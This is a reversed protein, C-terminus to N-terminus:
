RWLKRICAISFWCRKGKDRRCGAYFLKQVAVLYGYGSAIFIKLTLLMKLCTPADELAEEWSGERQEKWRRCRRHDGVLITKRALLMPMLLEPPTAKSVLRHDRCRFFHKNQRGSFAPKRQLHRGCCQM